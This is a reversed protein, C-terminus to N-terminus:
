PWFRAKVGSDPRSQIIQEVAKELQRNEKKQAILEKARAPSPEVHVDLRLWNRRRQPSLTKHYWAIVAEEFKGAKNFRWHLVGDRWSSEGGRADYKPVFV